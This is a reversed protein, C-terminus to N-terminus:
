LNLHNWLRVIGEDMVDIIPAQCKNELTKKLEWKDVYAPEYDHSVYRYKPYFPNITIAFLRINKKVVVRVDDAELGVIVSRMKHPNGAVLIKIPDTIIITKGKLVGKGEDLLFQFSNEGVIGQIVLEKTDAVVKELMEKVMFETLLSSVVLNKEQQKGPGKWVPVNFIETIARTEEALQDMDQTRSAGTALILGHTEVMPAIRNLAGDVIILEGGREQLYGNVMALESSKNPGAVLILGAEEIEGIIIRGMATRIDTRELVKIRASSVKLCDEAIAVLTGKEGEIRPKPLGTVNDLVEGDYGISTLAVRVGEQYAKKMIATTTTTKGTNKATGAIGIIRTM